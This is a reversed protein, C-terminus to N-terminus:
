KQAKYLCVGVQAQALGPLIMCEAKPGCIGTAAGSCVLACRIVENEDVFIPMPTATNGAPYDAYCKQEKGFTEPMCAWFGDLGEYTQPEERTGTCYPKHSAWFPNEYHFNAQFKNINQRLLRVEQRVPAAPQEYVCVNKVRDNAIDFESAKMCVAGKPCENNISDSCEVTCAWDYTGKVKTDYASLWLKFMGPPKPCDSLDGFLIPMCQGYVKGDVTKKLVMEDKHCAGNVSDAIFPDEYNDTAVPVIPPVPPSIHQPYYCIKNIYKNTKLHSPANQCVAGTPCEGHISESCEVVCGRHYEDFQVAFADLLSSDFTPPKPCQESNGFDRKPMCTAWNVGDIIQIDIKENDHCKGKKEDATWPNEYNKTYDAPSTIAAAALATLAFLLIIQTIKM